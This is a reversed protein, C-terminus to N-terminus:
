AQIVRLAGLSNVDFTTKLQEIDLDDLAAASHGKIGANNLLIDIPRGSMDSKLAAISAPDTIDLQLTEVGITKLELAENPKRATAIVSFGHQHFYRALALGIGRNAGTVLITAPPNNIARNGTAEAAFSIPGILLYGSAMVALLIRSLRSTVTTNLPNM